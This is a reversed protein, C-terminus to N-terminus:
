STAKKRKSRSQKKKKPTTKPTAKTVIKKEAEPVIAELVKPAETPRKMVMRFVYVALAVVLVSSFIVFLIVATSMEDAVINSRIPDGTKEVSLTQNQTLVDSGASQQFQTADNAADQMEPATQPNDTTTLESGDATIM